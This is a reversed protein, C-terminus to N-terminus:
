ISLCAEGDPSIFEHWRDGSDGIPGSSILKGVLGCGDKGKAVVEEQRREEAELRRREQRLQHQQQRKKKKKKQKQYRKKAGGVGGDGSPAQQAAAATAPARVPAGKAMALIADRLTGVKRLAATDGALAFCERAAGLLPLARHLAGTWALCEAELQVSRGYLVDGRGRTAKRKKAVKSALALAERPRGRRRHFGVVRTSNALM